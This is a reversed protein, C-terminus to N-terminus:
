VRDLKIIKDDFEVDPYDMRFNDGAAKIYRSIDNENEATFELVVTQDRNKTNEIIVRM